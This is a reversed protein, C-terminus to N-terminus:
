TLPDPATPLTAPQHVERATNADQDEGPLLLESVPRRPTPQATRAVGLQLVLQPTGPLALRKRILDRIAAAELPQTYVSAFVWRVASHLLMRHLAQGARLWDARGHGRTLLVVTAAPPPGDPSLLGPGHRANLDRQALRRIDHSTSRLRATAPIGDRATSGPVRSWQQIDAQARPDLDQRPSAADFISALHEYGSNDVIAATAGEALADHQLAPLIGAPLPSDAFPGRHTHRHPMAALMQRELPTAPEPSGLRVRALLRLRPPDPLLDVEPLRGISRVALRLGFLAAGCSILLERGVPDVRVQRTPDAYLEIAGPAVRFLWPQTNHISPARAAAAILYSALDASITAAPETSEEPM